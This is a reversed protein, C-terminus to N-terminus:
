SVQETPGIPGTAGTPGIIGTFSRVYIKREHCGCSPNCSCGNDCAPFLSLKKM